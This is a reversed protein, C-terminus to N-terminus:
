SSILFYYLGTIVISGLIIQALISAAKLRDKGAQQEQGVRHRKGTFSFIGLFGFLFCFRNRAQIFGSLAYVTPVFLMLKWVSPIDFVEASVIFIIM